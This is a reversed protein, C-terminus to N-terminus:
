SSATAQDSFVVMVFHEYSLNLRRLITRIGYITIKNSKEFSIERRLEDNVFYLFDQPVGAESSPVQRYGMAELFKKLQAWNHTVVL